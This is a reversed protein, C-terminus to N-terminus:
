LLGIQLSDTPCERRGCATCFLLARVACMLRQALLANRQHDAHMPANNQGAAVSYCLKRVRVAYDCPSCVQSAYNRTFRSRLITIGKGSAGVLSAGAGTGLSYNANGARGARNDQAPLYAYLVCWAYSVICLATNLITQGPGDTRPVNTAQQQSNFVQPFLLVLKYILM